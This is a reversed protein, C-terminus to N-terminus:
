EYEPSLLKLSVKEGGLESIATGAKVSQERVIGIGRFQVDLGHDLALTEANKKDLGSFNPVFGPGYDRKLVAAASTEVQDMQKVDIKKKNISFQELSKSKYLLYEAVTKFVPAAVDNGYYSGKTPRDVYSYIVFRENVNVPYGIFASVHGEYGGKNNVRQATGTKGAIKFYPIMANSGTGTEVAEVLMKHIEKAIEPEIVKFGKKPELGKILTPPIYVGDNAIAAFAALLQIGTTAIGQGFSVNSLTLPSVKKGEPAIGRSEGPIEIGTKLGFGFSSITQSLKPYGLDFAIKTTGVNSSYKIIDSVSLWEYKKKAEAESIIHGQVELKGKECYYNTDPKSIGHAFSSAATIVKFTSGPEFPDTAFSLKRHEPKSDEIRNPDFTPYNAMALIEGTKADMVGIGGKHAEFKLVAEKIAREAIGQLEKDITLVIEKQQVEFEQSEFKIARGKADKIYKVIKPKGRLEEDYLYEIGDLGKNDVGVFGLIQSALEGNPYIRKPVSEIFIGELKKIKEAQENDLSIKRALWTYKSRNKIRNMLENYSLKPAIKVLERVLKKKEKVNKPIIFLSYTRVNIALPSGSRDLIHGRNPYVKRSRLTQRKSYELLDNQNIIQVYFAKLIVALFLVTFLTFASIIRKKEKEM